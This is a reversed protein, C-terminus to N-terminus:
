RTNNSEKTSIEFFVKKLEAIQKENSQVRQYLLHNSIILNELLNEDDKNIDMFDKVIQNM